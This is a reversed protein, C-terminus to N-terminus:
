AMTRCRGGLILCRRARRLGFGQGLGGLAFSSSTKVLVSFSAFALLASGPHSTRATLTQVIARFSKEDTQLSGGGKARALGACKQCRVPRSRCAVQVMKSGPRVRGIGSRAPADRFGCVNGGQHALSRQLASDEDANRPYTHAKEKPRAPGNQINPRNNDPTRYISRDRAANVSASSSSTLDESLVSESLHAGARPRVEGGRFM